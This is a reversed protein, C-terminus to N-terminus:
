VSNTPTLQESGEVEITREIRMIETSISWYYDTEFSFDDTEMTWHGGHGVRCRVISRLPRWRDNITEHAKPGPIRIVRGNEFDFVYSSKLTRVRWVGRESGTLEEVIASESGREDERETM